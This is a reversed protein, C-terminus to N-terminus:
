IYLFDFKNTRKMKSKGSLLNVYHLGTDHFENNFTRCEMYCIENDEPLNNYICNILEKNILTDNNLIWIFNGYKVKNMFYNNAYAFGTNINSFYYDINKNKLYNNLIKVEDEMSNNDYIHIKYKKDGINNIISECCNITDNSSNYNVLIINLM